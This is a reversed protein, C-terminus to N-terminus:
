ECVGAAYADVTGLVNLVGAYSLNAGSFPKTTEIAVGIKTNDGLLELLDLNLQPGSTPIIGLV